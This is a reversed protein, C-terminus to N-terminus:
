LLHGVLRRLQRVTDHRGGAIARELSLLALHRAESELESTLAQLALCVAQLAGLGPAQDRVPLLQGAREWVGALLRRASEKRGEALVLWAMLLDWHLANVTGLLATAVGVTILSHAESPRGLRLLLMARQLRIRMLIEDPVVGVPHVGVVSGAAEARELWLLSERDDGAAEAVTARLLNLTVDGGGLVGANVAVEAAIEECLERARRSEGLRCHAEVLSALAECKIWEDSVLGALRVAEEGHIIASPHPQDLDIFQLHCVLSHLRAANRRGLHGTSLARRARELAENAQGSQALNLILRYEEAGNRGLPEDVDQFRGVFEMYQLYLM